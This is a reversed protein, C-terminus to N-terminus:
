PNTALAGASINDCWIVLKVTQPISLETLLQHIWAIEAATHALARYESETSLRAVVTQKKSSWSVLNNGIFVCYAAVSRRDDVNSLWDADSYAVVDLDPSPQLLIGLHKTGSVYRLVRKVAQWHQDTPASPFQSLHNVIYAIDPRTHTLYQLAGVTSRYLRPDPLPNGCNLSLHKGVVCPSPALKLNSMELKFLLDDVYKSQNLLIGSNLYHLRIGLFYSLKGLDKLAFTLDLKRILLSIFEHDNGTVIVDDVYILLIM